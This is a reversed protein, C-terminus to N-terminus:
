VNQTRLLVGRKAFFRLQPDMASNRAAPLVGARETLPLAVVRDVVNLDDEPLATVASTSRTATVCKM